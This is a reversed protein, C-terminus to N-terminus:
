AGRTGRRGFYDFGDIMEDKVWFRIIRRQWPGAIMLTMARDAHYIRHATDTTMKHISWRRHTRDRTKTLDKQDLFVTESYTGRLMISVFTWPHGHPDTYPDPHYFRHFLVTLWPTRILRIQRLWPDDTRDVQIVRPRDFKGTPGYLKQPM